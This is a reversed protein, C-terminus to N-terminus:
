ETPHTLQWKIDDHLCLVNTHKLGRCMYLLYILCEHLVMNTLILHMGILSAKQEETKVCDALKEHM